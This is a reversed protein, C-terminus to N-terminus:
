KITFKKSITANNPNEMGPLLVADMYIKYDSGPAIYTPITWAYLRDNPTSIAILGKYVSGRYLKLRVSFGGNTSTIWRISQVTGRRWVTGSTPMTISFSSIAFTKASESTYKLNSTVTVRYDLGPTTTNPVIWSFLGNNIRNSSITRVITNGKKLKITFTSGVPGVSSWRIPMSTETRFIEGGKPSVVKVAPVPHSSSVSPDTSHNIEVLNPYGDRDSDISEIARFKQITQGSANQFSLGYANRTAGSIGGKHCLACGLTINLRSAPYLSNFAGVYSSKAFSQNINLFFFLGFILFSLYRM